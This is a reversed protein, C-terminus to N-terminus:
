AGALELHTGTLLARLREEVLAALREEDLGEGRADIQIAGSAITIAGRTNGSPKVEAPRMASKSMNRAANLLAPQEKEMGVAFGEATYGGLEVMVKSPSQIKLAKRVGEPIANILSDLVATLKDKASALGSAIGEIIALGINAGKKLVSAAFSILKAELFLIGGVAAVVGVVVYGLGKGIEKLTDATPMMSSNASGFSDVLEMVTSKAENFGSKFGSGINRIPEIARNVSDSLSNVAVITDKVDFNKLADAAATAVGNLTSLLMKGSETSPDIATSISQLISVLAKGAEGGDIAMMLNSWKAQIKDLSGTITTDQFEQTLQGLQNEGLANLTIKSLAKVAQQGRPITALAKDVRAKTVNFNKDAVVNLSAALKEYLQQRSLGAEELFKFSDASLAGGSKLAQLPGTIASMAVAQGNNLAKLDAALHVLIKSEDNNFGAKNLERFAGTAEQASVGMINSIRLVESMTDKAAKASGLTFRLSFATTEKFRQADLASKGLFGALAAGAAVLASTMTTALDVTGSALWSLGSRMETLSRKTVAGAVSTVKGLSSMAVNTLREFKTMSKGSVALAKDVAGASKAMRSAPGTFKDLLEFTFRIM